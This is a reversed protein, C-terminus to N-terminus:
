GTYHRYFDNLFQLSPVVTDIEVLGSHVPLRLKVDIDRIEVLLQQHLFPAQSRDCQVIDSRAPLQCHLHDM